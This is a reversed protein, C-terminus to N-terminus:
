RRMEMGDSGKLQSIMMEGGSEQWCTFNTKRGGSEDGELGHHMIEGSPDKLFMFTIRQRKQKFHGENGGLQLELDNM